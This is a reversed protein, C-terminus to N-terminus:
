SEKFTKLKGKFDNYEKLFLIIIYKMTTKIIYVRYGDHVSDKTTSLVAHIREKPQLWVNM